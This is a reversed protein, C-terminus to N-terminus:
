TPEHILEPPIVCWVAWGEDTWMLGVLGGQRFQVVERSADGTVLLGALRSLFPLHGVLMLSSSSEEIMDALPGVDGKPVMRDDVALAEKPRLKEALLEATQQARLKGSHLIRGVTVPVGAAWTAVCEVTKRGAETLPRDPDVEKSVAEGHQVLFVVRSEPEPVKSTM